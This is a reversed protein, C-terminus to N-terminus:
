IACEVGSDSWSDALSSPAYLPFSLGPELSLVWIGEEALWGNMGIIIGPYTHWFFGLQCLPWQHNILSIFSFIRSCLCAFADGQPLYEEHQASDLMNKDEDVM